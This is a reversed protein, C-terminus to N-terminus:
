VEAILFLAGLIRYRSSATESEQVWLPEKAEMDLAVHLRIRCYVAM